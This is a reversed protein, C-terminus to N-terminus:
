LTIFTTTPRQCHCFFKRCNEFEPDLKRTMIEPILINRFHSLLKLFNESLLFQNDIPVQVYFSSSGGNAPPFFFFFHLKSLKSASIKLQM